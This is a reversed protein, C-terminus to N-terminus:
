KFTVSEFAHKLVNAQEYSQKNAKYAFSYFYKVLNKNHPVLKEALLKKKYLSMLEAIVCYHSDM